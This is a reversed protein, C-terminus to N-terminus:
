GHPDTIASSGWSRLLTGNRDFVLVPPDKRQFAYVRDQSDTAVASVPGFTWGTPLVAWNEHVEYAYRGSGVTTMSENRRRAHSRRRTARGGRDPAPALPSGVGPRRLGAHHRAANRVRRRGRLAPPDSRRMGASRRRDVPAGDHLGRRPRRRAPEPRDQVGGDPQHRGRE